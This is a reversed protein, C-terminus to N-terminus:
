RLAQGQLKKKKDQVPHPEFKYEGWETLVHEAIIAKYLREPHRRAEIAHLRILLCEDQDRDPSQPLHGADEVVVELLDILRNLQQDNLEVLPKAHQNALVRAVIAKVESHSFTREAEFRSRPRDFEYQMQNAAIEECDWSERICACHYLDLRAGEFDRARRLTQSRAFLPWYDRSMLKWQCFESAHTM